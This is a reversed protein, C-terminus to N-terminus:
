REQGIENAVSAWREAACHPEGRLHDYHEWGRRTMGSFTEPDGDIARATRITREARELWGMGDAASGTVRQIRSDSLLREVEAEGRSWRM